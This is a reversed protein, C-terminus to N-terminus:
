AKEVRIACKKYDPELSLPCTSDLCLQNMQVNEDFFAAFTIGRTVPMRGGICAKAFVTARRSTIKIRDVDAIGRAKADAANMYLMGEPLAKHIAAVRGTMSGTHWQEMFRGTDFWLDYHSDPVEVAEAYPRFFIKAKGPLPKPTKDTVADLNGSPIAKMLPGYFLFDAGNCFPDYMGNFRYSISKGNIYPWVIGHGKVM